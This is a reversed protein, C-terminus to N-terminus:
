PSHACRHDRFAVAGAPAELQIPPAAIRREAELDPEAPDRHSGPWIEPGGNAATIARTSFSAEDSRANQADFVRSPRM